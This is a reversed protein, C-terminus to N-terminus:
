DKRRKPAHSARSLARRKAREREDEELARRFRERDVGFLYSALKKFRGMSGDPVEQDVDKVPSEPPAQSREM